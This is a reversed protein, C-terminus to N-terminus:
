SFSFGASLQVLASPIPAVVEELLSAVFIGFAGLPLLTKEILVITEAIM